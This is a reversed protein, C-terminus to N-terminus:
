FIRPQPVMDNPLCKLHVQVQMKVFRNQLELCCTGQFCQYTDFSWQMVDWFITIKTYIPINWTM